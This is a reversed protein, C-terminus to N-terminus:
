ERFFADVLRGEAKRLHGHLTAPAIDLSEAVEDASSERPWEFYGARYAAELVEQQRDTMDTVDPLADGGAPEIERKALLETEPFPESVRELIRRVNTDPAVEVVFRCAGDEATATRVNAGAELLPHALSGEAATVELAAEGNKGLRRANTVGPRDAVAAAEVAPTPDLYLLLDGGEAPVLGELRWEADTEDALRALLADGDTSEIELEVRTDAVLLRTREIANLAHGVTEGLEDLVALERRGFGTERDTRLALAGYATRGHVIAVTAWEGGDPRVAGSPGPSGPADPPNLAEPPADRAAPEPGDEGAVMGVPPGDTVSTSLWAAEYLGSGALAEPVAQEVEEVTTADILAGNVERIVANLRELRRLRDRQARLERERQKRETVDYLLMTYGVRHDRRDTVPATEVEYTRGGVVLEALRDTADIDLSGPDVLRDIPDGLADGPDCGLVDGAAPNMYIIQRDTDVVLLGDDLQALAARRGLTRTAPLLEFLRYRFLANGFAVGTVTFAYPTLDIGVLGGPVLGVVSLGNAVLPAVVGVALLVAQDTYLYESAVVLRLLAISGAVVLGYAFALNVWYWTGFWQEALTIGGVQEFRQFEWILDHAPATWVLLITVAPVVALALKARRTAFEDRGTYEMAFLFFFVPITAIGFWQAQEWFLRAGGTRTLAVAYCASWVTAAAMMLAFPEAGPDARRRWAHRGLGGTVLAAGALLAVHASSGIGLM